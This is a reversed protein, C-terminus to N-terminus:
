PAVEILQCVTWGAGLPGAPYRHLVQWQRGDGVVAIRDGRAVAVDPPLHVTPERVIAPRGDATEVTVPEDRLIGRAAVPAGQAPVITVDRGFAALLAPALNVFPDM